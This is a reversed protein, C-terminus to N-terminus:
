RSHAASCGGLEVLALLPLEHSRRPATMASMDVQSHRNPTSTLCSVGHHRRPRGTHVRSSFRCVDRLTTEVCPCCRGRYFKWCGKAEAIAAVSLMCM